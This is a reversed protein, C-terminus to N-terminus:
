IKDKWLDVPFSHLLNQQLRYLDPVKPLPLQLAEEISNCVPFHYRGTSYYYDNYKFLDDFELENLLIAPIGYAEAIIIGHLSSSIVLKSNYIEDITQKWDSTLINIQNELRRKSSMHLIISYDKKDGERPTYILPLLVGPDGLLCRQTDYGNEQLRRKTEPGRVCRLDLRRYHRRRWLTGEAESKLIGSGWIVADQHGLLIISGITYIHKTEKVEKEPDLHNISIMFSYIAKALYDGFNQEETDLVWNFSGFKKRCLPAWHLNIKNKKAKTNLMSLIIHNRFIIELLKQVKNLM